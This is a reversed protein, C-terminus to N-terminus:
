SNLAIACPVAGWRARSAPLPRIACRDPHPPTAGRRLADHTGEDSKESREFDVRPDHGSPLSEGRLRPSTVRPRHQADETCM